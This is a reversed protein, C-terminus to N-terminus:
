RNRFIMAELLLFLGGIILLVPWYPGFIRLGGLLTGFVLFLILSIIVQHLGKRARGMRDSGFLSALIEGAGAFGPLLTWAYAWSTWNGTLNQWYLIGGIGAIVCAPVALDPKGALMGAVLLIGGGFVLLVPWSFLNIVEAIGPFIRAALWFGGVLILLLGIVLRSRQQENMNM